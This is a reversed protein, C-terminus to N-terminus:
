IQIPSIQELNPTSKASLLSRVLQVRGNYLGPSLYGDAPASYVVPISCEKPSDAARLVALPALLLSTLLSLNPKM